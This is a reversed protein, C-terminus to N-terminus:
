HVCFLVHIVLQRSSRGMESCCLRQMRIHMDPILCFHFLLIELSRVMVLVLNFLERLMPRSGRLM